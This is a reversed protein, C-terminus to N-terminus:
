TKEASVHRLSPRLEEWSVKAAVGSWGRACSCDALAEGLERANAYRDAPKKALCKLIIAELDSPVESGLRQSPREPAKDLHPLVSDHFGRGRFVPTGTVMWYLVAGMSYIDSVPTVPEGKIVEPPMCAPTGRISDVTTHGHGINLRALGFDLVKAFDYEDGVKTVFLNAPKLDCHIIGKTHAEFLSDCVQRALHVTRSAPLPGLRSIIAELDLGDLLEMAIYFVGDDSAGFDFVRITHPHVLHSAAEAERKFRRLSTPDSAINEKLLKLAVRRNLPMQRALWVDGMGGSGIRAVLRYSGLKRAEQIQEKAGWLLHSGATAVGAGLVLFISTQIFDWVVVPDALERTIDPRAPHLSALLVAIPFTLAAALTSPLTRQWPAPLVSRILTITVVGLALPSTAGGCRLAALSVLLAALPTILSEILQFAWDPLKDFGTVLHTTLGIGTGALRLAILYELPAGHVRAAILDTVVFATWAITGMMLYRRVANKREVLEVDIVGPNKSKDVSSAV